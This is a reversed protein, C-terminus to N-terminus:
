CDDEPEAYLPILGYGILFLALGVVAGLALNWSFVLTMLMWGACLGFIAVGVTQIAKAGMRIRLRPIDNM